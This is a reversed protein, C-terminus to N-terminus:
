NHGEFHIQDVFSPIEFVTISSVSCELISDYTADMPSIFAYPIRTPCGWPFLCRPLDPRLHFFLILILILSTPYLPKIFDERAILRTLTYPHPNVEVPQPYPGTAPDKPCSLWYKPEM